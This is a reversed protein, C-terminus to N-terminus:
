FASYKLIGVRLEYGTYYSYFAFYRLSNKTCRQTPFDCGLDFRKLNEMSKKISPFYWSRLIVLFFRSCSLPTSKLPRTQVRSCRRLLGYDIVFRRFGFRSSTHSIWCVNIAHRAFATNDLEKRIPCRLSRVGGHVLCRHSRL